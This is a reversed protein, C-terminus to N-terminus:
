TTTEEYARRAEVADVTGGDWASVVKFGFSDYEVQDAPSMDARVRRGARTLRRWAVYARYRAKEEANM